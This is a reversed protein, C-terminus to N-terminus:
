EGKENEKGEKDQMLEELGLWLGMKEKAPFVIFKYPTELGTEMAEIYMRLATIEPAQRYAGLILKFREAEGTSGKVKQEKYSEAEALMQAAKGRARPLIDNKYGMAENIAREYDEQASIVDEFAPAVETPPHMDRFGAFVIEIGLGLKDCYDQIKGQILQELKRREETIAHFFKEKSFVDTLVSCTINELLGEVDSASYLYGFIDKVKYQLNLNFDLFSNEGTLFPREEAYHINTWLIIPVDEATKFGLALRRIRHTDVIRARDVPYPIHYHLGPGIPKGWNIPKGFRELVAEQHPGVVYFGSGAYLVVILLCLALKVQRAFRARTREDEMNQKFIKGLFRLVYEGASPLLDRVFHVLWDREHLGEYAEAAKGLFSRISMVLVDIAHVFIILGIIAAVVRDIRIGLPDLVLATVVLISGYMDIKSHYGDAILGPSRSKEGVHVEYIYLLYSFFALVAVIGATPMPHRVIIPEPRIVKSFIEYSVFLLFVGISIAVWQEAKGPVYEVERAEPPEVGEQSIIPKYEALQRALEKKRRDMLLAIYVTLSSLIDSLSHWAEALLALSGSWAALIFKVITLVLNVFSSFLATAEEKTMRAM